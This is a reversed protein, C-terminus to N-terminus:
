ARSGVGSGASDVCCSCTLQHLQVGLVAAVEEPTMLRPMERGGLGGCAGAAGGQLRDQELVIGSVIRRHQAEGEPQLEGAEPEGEDDLARCCNVLM